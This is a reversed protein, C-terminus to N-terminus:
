SFAKPISAAAAKALHMWARWAPIGTSASAWDFGTALCADSVGGVSSALCDLVMRVCREGVTNGSAEGSSDLVSVGNAINYFEIPNDLDTVSGDIDTGIYNGSIVNGSVGDIRIGTGNGSIVNGAGPTNGGVTVQGAGGGTILVGDSNNGLAVHGTADLGIWNGEVKNGMGPTFFWVGNGGNGSIINRQGAATGGITTNTSNTVYIGGTNNPVAMTGTADTGIYNGEITNSDGDTISIGYGGFGQIVLGRITTDNGTIALGDATTGLLASRRLVIQSGTANITLSGLIAPLASDVAIIATSGVGISFNITDSGLTSNACEIAARLSGHGSDSANSVTLDSLDDPTCASLL